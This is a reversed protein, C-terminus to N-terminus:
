KKKGKETEKKAASKKENEKKPKKKAKEEKKAKKATKRQEKKLLEAELKAQKRAAAAAKKADKKTEYKTIETTKEAVTMSEVWEDKKTKFENAKPTMDKFAETESFIDVADVATPFDGVPCIGELLAWLDCEKGSPVVCVGFLQGPTSNTREVVTGGINECHIFSTLWKERKVDEVVSSYIEIQEPTLRAHYEDVLEAQGRLPLGLSVFNLASATAVFLFVSLFLFWQKKM